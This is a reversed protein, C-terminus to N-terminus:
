KTPTPSSAEVEESDGQSLGIIEDLERSDIIEKELLARALDHLKDINKELIDRAREQATEIL